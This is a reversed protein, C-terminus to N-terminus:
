YIGFMLKEKDCIVSIDPELYITDDANLFIALPAPLVELNYIDEITKEEEYEELRKAADMNIWEGKTSISNYYRM